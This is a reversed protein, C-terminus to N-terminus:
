PGVLGWKIAMPPSGEDEDPNQQAGSTRASLQISAVVESIQVLLQELGRWLFGECVM